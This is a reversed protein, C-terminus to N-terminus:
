KLGMMKKIKREPIVGVERAVEEGNRFVVLCPITSVKYQEALEDNEDIDVGVVKIDSHMKAFAELIPKMMRCPGCWTANFDVLVPGEARLVEGEFQEANIENM